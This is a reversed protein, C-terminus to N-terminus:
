SFLVLMTVYLVLPPKVHCVVVIGSLVVSSEVPSWHCATTYARLLNKAILPLVLLIASDVSPMVQVLVSFTNGSKEYSQAPKAYPLFVYTAILLFLPALTVLVSPPVVHLCNVAGLKSSEVGNLKWCM